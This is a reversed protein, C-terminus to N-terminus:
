MGKEAIRKEAAELAPILEHIPWHIGGGEIYGLPEGGRLYRRTWRALESLLERDTKPPDLNAALASPKM